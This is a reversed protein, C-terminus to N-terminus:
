GEEATFEHTFIDRGAEFLELLEPSLGPLPGGPPPPDRRAVAPEQAVPLAVAGIVAAAAIPSLMRRFIRNM